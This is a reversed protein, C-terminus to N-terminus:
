FVSDRLSGGALLDFFPDKKREDESRSKKPHLDVDTSKSPLPRKISVFAVKKPETKPDSTTLSTSSTVLGDHASLKDEPFRTTALNDEADQSGEAAKDDACSNVALEIKEERSQAPSEVAGKNMEAMKPISDLEEDELITEIRQYCVPAEALSDKKDLAVAGSEIESKHMREVLIYKDTEWICELTVYDRNIPYYERFIEIGEQTLKVSQREQSLSSVMNFVSVVDLLIQQALVRLRGLMALTTLSFAVFFSQALLISIEAAAKLIPEIAQSLLRAAGLLREMFNPKGSDCIRSKLSELLNIKQKPKDGSIVQFCSNLLEELKASQLLRFDRRVKLLYQFYGCRRHQNKNKHVIRELIACEFQLQRLFSKLREQLIEPRDPTEVESAMEGKNDDKTDLPQLSSSPLSCPCLGAGDSAQSSPLAM